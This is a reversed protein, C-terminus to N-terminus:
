RHSITSIDQDLIYSALIDRASILGAETQTTSGDFVIVRKGQAFRKLAELEVRTLTPLWPGLLRIDARLPYLLSNQSQTAAQFRLFTDFAAGLGHNSLPLMLIDNGGAIEQLRAATAVLKDGDFVKPQKGFEPIDLRATNTLLETHGSGRTEQKFCEILETPYPMRYNTYATLALETAQIVLGETGVRHSHKHYDIVAEVIRPATQLIGAAAGPRIVPVYCLALYGELSRLLQSTSESPQHLAFSGRDAFK